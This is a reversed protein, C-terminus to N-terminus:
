ARERARVERNRVSRGAEPRADNRRRHDPFATGLLRLSVGHHIPDGVRPTGARRVPLALGPRDPDVREEVAIEGLLLHVGPILAGRDQVGVAVRHVDRDLVPPDDPDAASGGVPDVVAAEVRLVQVAPLGVVAAVPEGPRQDALAAPQDLGAPVVRHVPDDVPRTLQQGARAPPPVEAEVGGSLQEELLVVREGHDALRPDAGRVHVAVGPQAGRRGRGRHLGAEARVALRARVGIDVVAVRDRQPTVVHGLRLGDQPHPHEVAAAPRVRRRHQGDIRPHRRHGPLGVEMQRHAAAGVQREQVSQQALDDPAAPAVVLVHRPVRDAEVLEAPDDVAVRRVPHGVDAAHGGGVHFPGGFQEAGRPQQQRGHQLAEVLGVLGRRRRARDVVQM